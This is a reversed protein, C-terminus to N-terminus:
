LLAVNKMKISYGIGLGDRVVPGFSGALLADSSLTSTSIINHNIRKFAVSNYLEPIAKNNIVATHKLAFLHRDFGQGMAAEKTLQGHTTSCQDILYRLHKADSGTKTDLLTECFEKTAKTCPRWLKQADMNLLLQAALSM